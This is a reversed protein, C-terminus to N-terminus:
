RKYREVLIVVTLVIVVVLSSIGVLVAITPFLDTM